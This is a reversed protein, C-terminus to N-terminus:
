ASISLRVPWPNQNPTGSNSRSAPQNVSPQDAQAPHLRFGTRPYGLAEAKQGTKVPPPQASGGTKAAPVTSKSPVVRAVPRARHRGPGGAPLSAKEAKWRRFISQRALASWASRQAKPGLHEPGLPAPACLCGRLRQPDLTPSRTSLPRAILPPLQHIQGSRGPFCAPNQVKGPTRAVVRLDNRM